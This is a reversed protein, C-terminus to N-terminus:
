GIIEFSKKVGEGVALPVGALPVRVSESITMASERFCTRRM